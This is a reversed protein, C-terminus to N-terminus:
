AEIPQPYLNAALDKILTYVPLALLLNLLLSPLTILELSELIPLETGSFILAAITLLHMVLTGLIAMAFMALMPTKWIQAQLYRAAGTIFFYGIIPVVLSLASYFSM